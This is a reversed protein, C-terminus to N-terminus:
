VGDINVTRSFIRMRYREAIRQVSSAILTIPALTAPGLCLSGNMWGAIISQRVVLEDQTRQGQSGSYVSAGFNLAGLARLAWFTPQSMEGRCCGRAAGTTRKMTQKIGGTISSYSIRFIM